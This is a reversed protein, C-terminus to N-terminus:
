VDGGALVLQLRGARTLTRGKSCARDGWRNLPQPSPLWLGRFAIQGLDSGSVFRPGPLPRERASIAQELWPRYQARVLSGWSTSDKRGNPLTPEIQSSRKTSRFRHSALSRSPVRGFPFRRWRRWASVRGSRDRLSEHDSFRAEREGSPSDALGLLARPAAQLRASSMSPFM